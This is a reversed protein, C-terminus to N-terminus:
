IVEYWGVYKRICGRINLYECATVVVPMYVYATKIKESKGRGHANSQTNWYVWCYTIQTNQIM